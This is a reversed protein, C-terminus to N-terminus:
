PWIFSKYNAGCTIFFALSWVGVLSSKAGIKSSFECWGCYTRKLRVLKPDPKRFKDDGRMNCSAQCIAKFRGLAKFKKHSLHQSQFWMLWLLCIKAWRLKTSFIELFCWFNLSKERTSKLSLMKFIELLPLLFCKKEEYKKFWIENM